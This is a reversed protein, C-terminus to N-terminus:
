FMSILTPIYISVCAGDVCLCVHCNYLRTLSTCLHAIESIHAQTLDTIYLACITQLKTHHARAITLIDNGKIRTSSGDIEIHELYPVHTQIANVTKIGIRTLHLLGLRQIYKCTYILNVISTDTINSNSKVDIDRLTHFCFESICNIHGDSLDCNIL